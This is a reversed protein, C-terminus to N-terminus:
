AIPNDAPGPTPADPVEISPSEVRDHAGSKRRLMDADARDLATGAVDAAIDALWLETANWPMDPHNWCLWALYRGDPSLRPAAYFDFGSALVRGEGKAETEAEAGLGSETGGTAGLGIEAITNSIEQGDRTHDERVAILRERSTDLAFDAHRHASNTTLARPAADGHQVYVRQDAFNSFYIAGGVVLSAGGGYEHVRSRVNFPTPTVITRGGGEAARVVAVRGGDDVLGELWYLQGGDVQPAAIPKAGAAIERASLPSRWSGYPAIRPANM